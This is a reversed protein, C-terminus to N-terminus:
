NDATIGAKRILQTWKATDARVQEAFADAGAVAPTMGLDSLRAALDPQAMVKAFDENLRALVERPTGAPAFLGIWTNAEYGPYGSEAVTPVQPLGPFRSGSTVALARLRGAKVQGLSSTIGDFALQVENGLLANVMPGSGKYPVHVMDTGTTIRFLEAAIRTTSGGAGYNLKGPQAKALAVLEAV